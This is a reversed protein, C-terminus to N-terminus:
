EIDTSPDVKGRAAKFAAPFGDDAFIMDLNRDRRTVALLQRFGKNPTMGQRECWELFERADEAPLDFTISTEPNSM